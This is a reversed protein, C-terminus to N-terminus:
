SSGCRTVHTEDEGAHELQEREHRREREGVDGETVVHGLDVGGVLVPADLLPDVLADAGVRVGLHTPGRVQAADQGKRGHAHEEEIQELPKWPWRGPDRPKEAMWGSWANLVAADKTVLM